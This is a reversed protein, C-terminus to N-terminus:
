GNNIRLWLRLIGNIHMLHTPLFFMILKRQWWPQRRWNPHPNQGNLEILFCTSFMSPREGGSSPLPYSSLKMENVQMWKHGYSVLASWYVCLVSWHKTCLYHEFRIKQMPVQVLAEAICHWHQTILSWESSWLFIKNIFSNWKMKEKNGLEFSM